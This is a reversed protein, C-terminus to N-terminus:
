SDILLRIFVRTTKKSLDSSQVSCIKGVVEPLELNTNAIVQFNDFLTIIIPSQD